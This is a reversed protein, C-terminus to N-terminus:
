FSVINDSCKKRLFYEIFYLIKFHHIDEEQFRLYKRLCFKSELLVIKIKPYFCVIM